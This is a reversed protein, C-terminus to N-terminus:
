DNSMYYAEVMMVVAAATASIDQTTQATVTFMIGPDTTYTADGVAAQEWLTKGRDINGLTTAEDFYDVRAIAGSWDIADGFLDEDVVAGDNNNGKEYLGVNFTTTAGWNADMTFYLNILRDSSKLDMIRIVDNDGLDQGSPVTLRAEKRRFRTHGRGPAVLIPPNSLTTFHGTAGVDASYHNSYFTAM